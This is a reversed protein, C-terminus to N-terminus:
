RQRKTPSTTERSPLQDQVAEADDIHPDYMSDDDFVAPLLRVPVVAEIAAASESAILPHSADLNVTARPAQRAAAILLQRHGANTVGSLPASPPALPNNDKYRLAPWGFSSASIDM